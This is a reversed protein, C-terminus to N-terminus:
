DFVRRYLGKKVRVVKGEKIWRNLMQATKNHNWGTLDYVQRTTFEGPLKSLIEVGGNETYEAFSKSLRESWFTPLKNKARIIAFRRCVYRVYDTGWYAAYHSYKQMLERYLEPSWTVYIQKRLLPDTITSFFWDAYNFLFSLERRDLEFLPTPEKIIFYDALQVIHRDIFNSAQTVFVLSLDKHRSIALIKSLSVNRRSQSTRGHAVFEAEDIVLFTGNPVEWIDQYSPINKHVKVGLTGVERHFTDRAIELSRYAWATKGAGRRGLVVVIIGKKSFLEELLYLAEEEEWIDWRRSQLEELDEPTLVERLEVSAM